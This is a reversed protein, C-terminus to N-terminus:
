TAGRNQRLNVSIKLAFEVRRCDSTLSFVLRVKDM